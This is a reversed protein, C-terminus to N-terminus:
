RDGSTISASSPEGETTETAFYLIVGAALSAIGTVLLVDAATNLAQGRDRLEARDTDGTASEFDDHTNLALGGTIGAGILAAAGLGGMVWTFPSRTTEAPEELSVTVWTRDNPNVEVPGTWPLLGPSEVTLEHMGVPLSPLVSPAFAAPKGDLKVVAGSANSTITVEGTPAPLPEPTAAVKATQDAEVASLGRWPSHGDALVEVEYPGPPIRAQLPTAGEAVVKGAPTRVEAHGTVPASVELVGLIRAPALSVTAVKGRVATVTADAQRHGALEVWIRHEGEKVAIVRPTKGYDGLERRDVYITAGEPESTIELRAINPLLAAIAKDAYAQRQESMEGSARYETFMMFADAPRELQEFCLAINFTIRPNPALQLSQYFERIAEEFRGKQYHVRAQDDHFRAQAAADARAATPSLLCVAAIWAAYAWTALRAQLASRASRDRPSSQHV